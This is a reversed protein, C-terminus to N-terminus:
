AWEPKEWLSMGPESLMLVPLIGQRQAPYSVKDEPLMPRHLNWRLRIKM